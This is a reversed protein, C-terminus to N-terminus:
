RRSRHWQATLRIGTHWSYPLDHGLRDRLKSSSVVLSGTLREIEATTIPFPMVRNIADGGSGVIALLAAPVRFLRAPKGLAQGIEELLHTTSPAVDDAVFFIDAATCPAITLSEIASVVNGAFVMSRHNELGGLPLPVGREVANFLRLMNGRMEPGYVLPLRLIIAALQSRVALALLVDEAERKSTGYPDTPHPPQNESWPENTFEGVAKVSSVLVFTKVGARMAERVALETGEVNVRRFQSLPDVATERMVHVRAALHIVADIGQTAVRLATTDTVGTWRVSEVRHGPVTTGARSLARVDHGHSALYEVVHKGLFGSAGTVLLKV